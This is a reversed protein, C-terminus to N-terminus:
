PQCPNEFANLWQPKLKTTSPSPNGPKPNVFSPTTFRMPTDIPIRIVMSIYRSHRMVALASTHNCFSDFYGDDYDNDDDEEICPNGLNSRTNIPSWLQLVTRSPGAQLGASLLCLSLANMILHKTPRLTGSGALWGFLCGYPHAHICVYMCVYMTVYTRGDMWRAMCVHMFAHM